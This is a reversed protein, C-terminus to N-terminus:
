RKVWPQTRLVLVDVVLTDSAVLQPGLEQGSLDLLQVVDSRSLVLTAAAM